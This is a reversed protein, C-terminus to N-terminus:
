EPLTFSRDTVINQLQTRFDPYSKDLCTLDDIKVEGDAILSAALLAMALRHDGHSSVECGHMVLDTHGEIIMKEDDVTIKVGLKSFEECFSAARDSEKNRLRSIGTIISPGGCRLALLFIAPFIDPMNTVNCEFPMLLSRRCTLEMMLGEAGRYDHEKFDIGLDLLMTRFNCDPQNTDLPLDAVTASGALCGAALVMSAASWDREMDIHVPKYHRKGKVNVSMRKFDADCDLKTKVGFIEMVEDTLFIYNLSAVNIIQLRIDSDSLPLAMLLGSILQSGYTGSLNIVGPDLKGCVQAPLFEGRSLKVDVGYSKLAGFEKGFKRHLLTKEGM